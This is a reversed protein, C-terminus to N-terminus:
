VGWVGGVVPDEFREFPWYTVEVIMVCDLSDLGNGKGDEEGNRADMVDPDVVQFVFGVSDAEEERPCSQDECGTEDESFITSM